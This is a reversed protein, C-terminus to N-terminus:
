RLEELYRGLIRAALADGAFRSGGADWITGIGLGNLFAQHDGTIQREFCAIKYITAGAVPVTLFAEYYLLQALASQVQDREDAPSGDLSKVEALVAVEGLVALVDFPDESLTMGAAALRASFARVLLNHRRIRDRRLAIAAAAAAPDLDPPVPPEDRDAIGAAAITDPTVLRSSRPRRPAAAAARGKVEPPAAVVRDAARGPADALRFTQGTKIVDRLQEAFHPIVKKANDWNAKSVSIKARIKDEPLKSLRVIRQLEMPSDDRAELALACKARTIGPRRAILRLLMQYPHSTTGGGHHRFNSIVRRWFEIQGADLPRGAFAAAQRGERTVILTPGSDDILGLFRYLERLGRASTRFSQNSPSKKLQERIYKNVPMPTHGTGLVGARVMAEGLVGDDKPNRGAQLVQIVCRLGQALKGLDVIQNPFGKM